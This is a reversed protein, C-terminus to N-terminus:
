KRSQGSSPLMPIPPASPNSAISNVFDFASPSGGGMNPAPGSLAPRMLPQALGLGMNVKGATTNPVLNKFADLVGSGSRAVANNLQDQLPGTGQQGGITALTGLLDGGAQQAAQAGAQAAAQTGVAGAAQGAASGAANGAGAASGGGLGGLAGTGAGMLTGKIGGGTILQSVGGGIAGGLPGGLAAGTIPGAIRIGQKITEGM